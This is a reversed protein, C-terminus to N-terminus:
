KKGEVYINPKRASRAGRVVKLQDTGYIRAKFCMDKAASRNPAIITVDNITYVLNLSRGFIDKNRM